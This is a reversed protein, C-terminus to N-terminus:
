KLVTDSSRHPIGLRYHGIAEPFRSGQSIGKQCSNKTEDSLIPSSTVRRDHHRARQSLSFFCRSGGSSGISNGSAQSTIFFCTGSRSPRPQVIRAQTRKPDFADIQRHGLLTRKGENAVRSRVDRSTEFTGVASM